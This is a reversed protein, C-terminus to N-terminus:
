CSGPINQQQANLELVLRFPHGDEITKFHDFHPTSIGLWWHVYIRKTHYPSLGIEVELLRKLIWNSFFIVHHAGWRFDAFIICALLIYAIAFNQICTKHSKVQLLCLIGIYQLYFTLRVQIVELCFYQVRELKWWTNMAFMFPLECNFHPMVHIIGM